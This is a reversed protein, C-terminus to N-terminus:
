VDFHVSIFLNPSSLGEAYIYKGVVNVNIAITDFGKENKMQVFYKGADSMKAKRRTLTAQGEEVEMNTRDDPSLPSPGQFTDDIFRVM